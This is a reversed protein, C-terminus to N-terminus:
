SFLRLLHPGFVLGGVLVALCCVVLVAGACVDKIYKIDAHQQPMVLNCLKEVASNFLEFGIVLAICGSVAVWEGTKLDVYFGLAIVLVAASGHLKLHPENRFAQALGSFAYVFANRRRKLYSM